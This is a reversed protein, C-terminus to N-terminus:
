VLGHLRNQVRDLTLLAQQMSGAWNHSCYEVKPRIQSKYIYLIAKFPLALRDDKSYGKCCSIYSDWKLDSTFELGLLKNLSPSEDLLKTGGM